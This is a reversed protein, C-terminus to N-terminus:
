LSLQTGDRATGGQPFYHIEITYYGTYGDAELVQLQEVFRVWGNGIPVCRPCGNKDIRADKLHIHRAM